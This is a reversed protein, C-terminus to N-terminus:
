NSQNGDKLGDISKQISKLQGEMLGIRELFIQEEEKVGKNILFASINATLLSFLAVGLLILVGGFLRGMNSHPVVDGYGITTVTALAWWVGDAISKVEPDIKFIISGSIIVFVLALLLTSGLHNKRLVSHTTNFLRSLLGMMFVLRMFRMITTIPTQEWLVPLSSIVIIANMWNQSIYRKKDSVLLTLVVGETLFLVWILWDFVSTVNASIDGTSELYVQVPIWLVAILMPLEFRAGWKKATNNEEPHVGRLGVLSKISPM